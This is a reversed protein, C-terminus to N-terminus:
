PLKLDELGALVGGEPSRVTTALAVAASGKPPLTLIWGRVGPRLEQGAPEALASIKVQDSSPKLVRDQLEVVQTEPTDNALTLREKVVCQRDRSFAGAAEWKADVKHLGVRLGRYPGFGLEFQLGPPPTQLRTRGLRQTGAYQIVESGPFLPLDEPATFRAVQFVTPDLRPSAVLRLDPTLERALVKFRHPEGDSPVDKLGDLSWLTALGQTEELPSTRAADSAQLLIQPDAPPASAGSYGGFGSGDRFNSDLQAGQMGFRSDSTTLGDLVFSNEASSAGSIAPQGGRAAVVGPAFFALSSFDRGKPSAAVAVTASSPQYPMQAMWTVAKAGGYAQLSLNRGARANSIELRVGTWDEGSKQAVSATLVLELHKGDASLRAEYSPVWRAGACRYTFELEVDGATATTMDLTATVPSKRQESARKTLEADLRKAEEDLKALARIRRHEKLALDQVREQLGGSLALISGADPTAYALRTSLEKDHAVQLNKLFVQQQAIAEGESELQDHRDVLAEKEQLLKQYDETETVKRVDSSLGLDGLRSGAPGRASVRVDDLGLGAPLNAVLLRHTGAGPVRIRGVRTVWAEDPHLRVRSLITDVPLPAQASLALTIAPLILAKM